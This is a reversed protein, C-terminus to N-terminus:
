VAELERSRLSALGPPRPLRVHSVVRDAFGRAANAVSLLEAAQGSRRSGLHPLLLELLREVEPGTKEITWMPLRPAARLTLRVPADIVSAVRGAVDRDRHQLRIRAHKGHKLDLTGGTELVGALWILETENM